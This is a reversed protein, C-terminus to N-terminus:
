DKHGYMKDWEKILCEPCAPTGDDLTRVMNVPFKQGCIPCAMDEVIIYCVNFLIKQQKLKEVFVTRPITGVMVENDRGQYRTQFLVTKVPSANLLLDIAEIMSEMYKDKIFLPTLDDEITLTPVFSPIDSLDPEREFLADCMPFAQYFGNGEGVVVSYLIGQVRSFVPWRDSYRGYGQNEIENFLFCNSLEKKALPKDQGVCLINIEYSM